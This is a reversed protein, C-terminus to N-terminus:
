RRLLVEVAAWPSQGADNSAAVQVTATRQLWFKPIKQLEQEDLHYCTLEEIPQFRGLEQNYDPELQAVTLARGYAPDLVAVVYRSIPQDDGGFPAIWNFRVRRRGPTQCLVAARLSLPQDPTSVRSLSREVADKAQRVLEAAKIIRPCQEVKDPHLRKMLARYGRNSAALDRGGARLVEFGWGAVTRFSAQRLSIIRNAELLVDKQEQGGGSSRTSSGQPSAPPRRLAAAAAAYPGSAAAEAAAAAAAAASGIGPCKARHVQPAPASRSRVSASSAASASSNGRSSQECKGSLTQMYLAQLDAKEVCGGFDVGRAKLAEKLKAISSPVSSEEAKAAKAATSEPPKASSSYSEHRSEGPEPGASRSRM